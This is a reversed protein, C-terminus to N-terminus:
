QTYGEPMKTDHGKISLKKIINAQKPYHALLLERTGGEFCAGTFGPAVTCGFLAYQSEPLLEAAQWVNAPVTFQVYEGQLFNNGMQIQQYTGEPFLLHITFAQGQYFHWVEDHKLRHFYSLSLPTHCYLGIMATSVPNGEITRKSVYTSKYYTGEIPIRDFQFHDIIAKIEKNM